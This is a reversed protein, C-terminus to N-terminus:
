RKNPSQVAWGGAVGHCSETTIIGAGNGIFTFRDARWSTSGAITPPTAAAITRWPRSGIRTTNSIVSLRRSTSASAVM